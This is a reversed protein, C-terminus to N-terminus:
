SGLRAMELGKMLSLTSKGCWLLKTFRLSFLVYWTENWKRIRPSRFLVQFFFLCFVCGGKVVGLRVLGVDYVDRNDGFHQHSPQSLM